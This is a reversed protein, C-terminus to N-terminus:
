TSSPSALLVEAAERRFAEAQARMEAEREPALGWGGMFHAAAAAVYVQWLALRTVDIAGDGTYAATFRSVAERGYKWLLELRCSAVDSLPDGLAADEWDLIAALRGNRWLLNGPWYDGHLLVREGDYASGARAHLHALLPGSDATPQLYDFLEPLPDTRSPLAPLGDRPAAHVHLLAAAMADIASGLQESPIETTGDVFETVLYPGALLDGSADLMLPEPVPLGVRRLASLLEFETTAADGQMSKWAAPRPRRVVVQVRRGDVWDVEVAHVDASVGGTLLRAGRFRADPFLRQVVAALRDLSV